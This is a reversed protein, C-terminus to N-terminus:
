WSLTTKFINLEHIDHQFVDTDTNILTSFNQRNSHQKITQTLAVDTKERNYIVSQKIITNLLTNKFRSTFGVKLKLAAYYHLALINGRINCWRALVKSQSVGPLFTHLHRVGPSTRIETLRM